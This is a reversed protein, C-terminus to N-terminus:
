PLVPALLVDQGGANADFPHGFANTLAAPTLVTRAAGSIAGGAGDLLLAHSAFHRALNVDHCSLVVTDGGEARERLLALCAIQHRLDLHNLPEDLLLLPVDQALLAALAVRQREGGSLTRVDRAAYDSLGQRALAAAVVADDGGAWARWGGWGPRQAHRALAVVEDVRAAFADHRHQPLWGRWRALQADGFGDLAAGNLRTVGTAPADLGALVRLLTTKGAGNPGLVAWFEGPAARWHELALLRRGGHDLSLGTVALEARRTAHDM